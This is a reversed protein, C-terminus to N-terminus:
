SVGLGGWGCKFPPNDTTSMRISMDRLYEYISSGKINRYIVYLGDNRQGIGYEYEM